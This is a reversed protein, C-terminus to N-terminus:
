AWKFNVVLTEDFNDISFFLVLKIDIYFFRCFYAGGILLGWVENSM